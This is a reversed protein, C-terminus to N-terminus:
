DHHTVLLVVVAHKGLAVPDERQAADECSIRIDQHQFGVTDIGRKRWQYAVVEMVDLCHGPRHAPFVKNREIVTRVTVVLRDPEGVRLQQLDEIEFVQEAIGARQGVGAPNDQDLGHGIFEEACGINKPPDDTEIVFVIQMHGGHDGVNRCVAM